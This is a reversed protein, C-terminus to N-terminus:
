SGFGLEKMIKAEDTKVGIKGLLEKWFQSDYRRSRIILPM